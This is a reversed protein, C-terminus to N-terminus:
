GSQSHLCRCSKSLSSCSTRTGLFCSLDSVIRGTVGRRLCTSIQRSAFGIFNANVAIVRSTRALRAARRVHRDRVLDQRLDGVIVTVPDRHDPVVIAAAYTRRRARDCRRAREPLQLAVRCFALQGRAHGRRNRRLWNNGKVSLAASDSLFVHADPKSRFVLVRRVIVTGASSARLDVIRLPGILALTESSRPRGCSRSRSTSTPGLRRRSIAHLPHHARGIVAPPSRSALANLADRIEALVPGVRLFAVSPLDAEPGSFVEDVSSVEDLAGHVWHASHPIHILYRSPLFLRHTM